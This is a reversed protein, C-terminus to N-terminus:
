LTLSKKDNHLMEVTFNKIKYFVELIVEEPLLNTMYCVYVTFAVMVCFWYMNYLCTYGLNYEDKYFEEERSQQGEESEYGHTDTNCDEKEENSESSEEVDDITFITEQAKLIEQQLNATKMLSNVSRAYVGYTSFIKRLFKELRRFVLYKQDDSVSPCVLLSTLSKDFQIIMPSDRYRQTAREVHKKRDWSVDSGVGDFVSGGAKLLGTRTNLYYAGTVVHALQGKKTKKTHFYNLHHVM